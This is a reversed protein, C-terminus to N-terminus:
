QIKKKKQYAEKENRGLGNQSLDRYFEKLLM